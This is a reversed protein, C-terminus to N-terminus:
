QGLKLYVEYHGNAGSLNFKQVEDASAETTTTKQNPMSWKAQVTGNKNILEVRILGIVDDPNLPTADEDMLSAILTVKQGKELPGSWLPVSQLAIISSSPWNLPIEPVRIYESNQNARLVKIDFYLNDRLTEGAEIMKIHDLVLKPHLVQTNATFVLSSFLIGAFIAMWKM